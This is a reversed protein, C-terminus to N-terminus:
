QKNFPILESNDKCYLPHKPSGNKNIVLAKANPFMESLEKDRNNEVVIKFNGWAFVVDQCKAAIVTIMNNNWEDSMSNFKLDEPKTAVYAWCNMMYVGGYGNNKAIKCVKTITNDSQTENATSPNLGIFMVKPKSDDWIRWLAYRYKRDESFIADSGDDFLKKDVEM